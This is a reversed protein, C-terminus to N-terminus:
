SYVRIEIPEDTLMTDSFAISGSAGFQSFLNIVNASARTVYIFKRDSGQPEYRSFPFFFTKDVTFAGSLTLTYQGASSRALVVTGGLTNQLVKATPAAGGSQTILATYVLYPSILDKVDQITNKGAETAGSAAQTPIVDTLALTRGTLGYIQRNAM